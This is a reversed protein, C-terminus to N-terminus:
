ETNISQGTEKRMKRKMQNKGRSKTPDKIIQSQAKEEDEATWVLPLLAFVLYSTHIKLELESRHSISGELYLKRDVQAEQIRSLRTQKSVVTEDGIQIIGKQINSLRSVAEEVSAASPNVGKLGEEQLGVRDRRVDIRKAAVEVMEIEIWGLEQLDAFTRQVQEICPSFSCIRIAGNRKLPGDRTLHRLALWPAPLDLFVANAHYASGDFGVECVDRHRLEVIDDLRHATLETVLKEYRQQHFEFSLVKGGSGYVARCAAHTFSGSGAGAEIIISGPRVRLRNLIYSSDHTYVVQTRHPLSKTWNEPTPPVLHVFGSQANLPVKVAGSDQSEDNRRRKKDNKGSRGRSGTDVTSARIQSGWKVGILTSHPFSGFRTNTVKGEHYGEDNEDENTLILPIQIDRRLYLLALDKEQTTGTYTLFPSKSITTM